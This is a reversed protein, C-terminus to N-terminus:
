QWFYSSNSHREQRARQLHFSNILSFLFFNIVVGETASFKFIILDIISVNKSIGWSSRSNYFFFHLTTDISYHSRKRFLLRKNLFLSSYVVVHSMLVFYEKSSFVPSNRNIPHGFYQEIWCPASGRGRALISKTM